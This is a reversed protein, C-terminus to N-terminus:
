HSTRPERRRRGPRAAAAPRTPRARTTRTLRAPPHRWGGGVGGRPPFEADRKVSGGDRRRFELQGRPNCVLARVVRAGGRAAMSNGSRGARTGHRRCGCPIERAALNVYKARAEFRDWAVPALCNRCLRPWLGVHDAIEDRGSCEASAFRAPTYTFYRADALRAAPSRALARAEDPM